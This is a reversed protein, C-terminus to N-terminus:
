MQRIKFKMQLDRDHERAPLPACWRDALRYIGQGQLLLLGHQNHHIEQLCM